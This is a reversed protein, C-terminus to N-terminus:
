KKRKKVPDTKTYLNLVPIDVTLTAGVRTYLQNNVNASQASLSRLAPSIQGGILLSVPSKGFGYHLYFGPALINQLKIDPTISASSDKFRMATVAGIDILPVFFGISKGGTTKGTRKHKDSCKLNGWSFALGVPAAIGSSFRWYNVHHNNVNKADRAEGAAYIGVFANLSINFTTNRKISASGVPLAIAEIAAKVEDSNQAQAIAAAFTSYKLLSNRIKGTTKNFIFLTLTDINPGATEHLGKVSIIYNYVETSSFASSTKLFAELKKNHMALSGSLKVNNLEAPFLKDLIIVANLAASSYNKTRIDVYMEGTSRAVFFWKESQDKILQEKTGLSVFPLDIFGFGDEVLDLSANYLLYYDNFDKEAKGKNNIVELYGEVELADGHIKKIFSKYAPISNNFITITSKIPKLIEQFKLKSGDEQVFEITRGKQYILGLYINLLGQDPSWLLDLSDEPIWYNNENKDQSRLSESFLQAVGVSSRLNTQLTDNKFKITSTDFDALVKGPHVSKSYENIFYFSTSILTYLDPYRDFYLKYKPLQELQQFGKYFNVMDKIFAERLTNLYADFMYIQNDIANLVKLTSPFFIKLEDSSNLDDKFREFFTVSLEQKTREVLFKALGDTFNTVDLGGVSSALSKVSRSTTIDTGAGTSPSINLYSALFPNYDPNASNNITIANKLDDWNSGNPISPYYKILITFIAKLSAPDNRFTTGNIYKKLAVADSYETQSYGEVVFFISFLLFFIQKKM